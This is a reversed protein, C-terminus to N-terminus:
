FQSVSISASNKQTATTRLRIEYQRVTETLSFMLNKFAKLMQRLFKELVHLVFSIKLIREGDRDCQWSFKRYM